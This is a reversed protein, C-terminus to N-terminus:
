KLGVTKKNELRDNSEVLAANYWESFYSHKVHKISGPLKDIYERYFQMAKELENLDAYYASMSAYTPAFDPAHEIAKQYADLQMEHDSIEGRQRYAEGLFFWYEPVFKTLEPRSEYQRIITDYDYGRIYEQYTPIRYKIAFKLYEKERIVGKKSKLRKELRYTREVTKPHTSYKTAGENDDTPDEQSSVIFFRIAQNGDYQLSQFRDMGIKDAELEQTQSFRSYTATMNRSSELTQEINTIFKDYEKYSHRKMFHAGEHALVFAIQAENECMALMSTSIFVKGNPLIFANADYGHFINVTFMGEYEPYLIQIINLLYNEIASDNVVLKLRHMLTEAKRASHFLRNTAEHKTIVLEGAPVLNAYFPM